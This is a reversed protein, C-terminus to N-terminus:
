RPTDVHIDTHIPEPREVERETVIPRDKEIVTESRVAPPQNYVKTTCATLPLLACTLTALLLTKM